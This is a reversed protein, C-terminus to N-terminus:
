SPGNRRKGERKKGRQFPFVPIITHHRFSMIERKEDEKGRGKRKEEGRKSTNSISSLSQGVVGREGKGKKGKKKRERERHHLLKNV